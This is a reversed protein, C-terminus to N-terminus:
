TYTHTHVFPVLPQSDYSIPVSPWVRTRQFSVTRKVETGGRCGLLKTNTDNLRQLLMKAGHDCRCVLLLYNTNIHNFGLLDDNMTVPLLNWPTKIDSFLKWSKLIYFTHTPSPHHSLLYSGRSQLCSPRLKFVWFGSGGSWATHMQSNILGANRCHSSPLIGPLKHILWDPACLWLRYSVKHSVLHFTLLSVYPQGGVEVSASHPVCADAWALM